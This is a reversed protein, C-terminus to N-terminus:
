FYIFLAFALCLFLSFFFLPSVSSYTLLPFSFISFFVSFQRGTTGQLCFWTVADRASDADLGENGADGRGGALPRCGGLFGMFLGKCPYSCAPKTGAASDVTLCDYWVAGVWVSRARPVEAQRRWGWKQFRGSSCLAWVRSSLFFSLSNAWRTRSKTAGHVTVWWAGGDMPNELCSYQLPNGNGEASSRGSGPISGQDGANYAFAKGDSGGSFDAWM